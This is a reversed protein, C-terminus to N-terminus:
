SFQYTTNKLNKVLMLYIWQFSQHQIQLELIQSVSAFLQSVPFYMSAPFSLNLVFSSPPWLPHSPQIADAWHVHTQAFELSITFSLSAQRASTSPTAFLWVHSFLLLFPLSVEWSSTVTFHARRSKNCQISQMKGTWLTDSRIKLPMPCGQPGPFM